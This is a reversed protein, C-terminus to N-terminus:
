QDAHVNSIYLINFQLRWVPVHDIGVRLFYKHLSSSLAALLIEVFRAGTSNKIEKIKTLIKQQSPNRYDNESWYTVM